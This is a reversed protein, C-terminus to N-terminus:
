KLFIILDRSGLTGIKHQPQQHHGPNDASAQDPAPGELNLCTFSEEVQCKEPWDEPYLWGQTRIYSGIILLVPRKMCYLVLVMSTSFEAIYYLLLVLGIGPHFM